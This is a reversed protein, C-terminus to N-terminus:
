GVSGYLLVEAATGALTVFSIAVNVRFFALNVRSLDAPRVLAHEMGVLAAISVCAAYYPLHLRLAPGLAALCLVAAGHLLRAAALARAIGLRVVLSHVGERRDSELDQTAYIVDFGTVWLWVALGLWAIRLDLEGRVAVWAGLPALALVLGVFFHCLHTFRKTLPYFWLSLLVLPVLRWALPNLQRAALAFLAAAGLTLAVASALSIEGTVLERRCTRPNRADLRRDAIRNWGMGATRAGLMAALIWGVVRWPPLGGAALLMSALAFPLAFLTHSFRVFRAYVGLRGLWEAM